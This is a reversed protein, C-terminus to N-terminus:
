VCKQQGRKYENVKKRTEKYFNIANALARQPTVLGLKEMDTPFLVCQNGHYLYDVEVEYGLLVRGADKYVEYRPRPAKVAVPTWDFQQWWWNAKFLDTWRM